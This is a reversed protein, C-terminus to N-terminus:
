KIMEDHSHWLSPSVSSSLFGCASCVDLVALVECASTRIFVSTHRLHVHANIGLIKPVFYENSLVM